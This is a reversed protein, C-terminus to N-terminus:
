RSLSKLNDNTMIVTRIELETGLERRQWWIQIINHMMASNIGYGSLAEM